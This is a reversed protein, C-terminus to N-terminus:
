VLAVLTVKRGTIGMNQPSMCLICLDFLHVWHSKADQPASLRFLWKSVCVLDVHRQQMILTYLAPIAIPNSIFM